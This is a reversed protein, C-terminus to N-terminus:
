KATANLLHGEGGDSRSEGEGLYQSLPGPPHPSDALNILGVWRASQVSDWGGRAGGELSPFM